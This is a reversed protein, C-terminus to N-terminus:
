AAALAVSAWLAGVRGTLADLAYGRWGLEEPVPGLILVFLAFPILSLPQQQYDEMLQLQAWNGGFAISIAVSAIVLAPIFLLLFLYHQWGIRSWDFVRIWYDKQQTRNHFRYLLILAALTPGLGGVAVGVQGPLTQASWGAVATLWWASWSILLVLLFFPGATYQKINM